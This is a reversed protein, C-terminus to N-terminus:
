SASLSHLRAVAEPNDAASKSITAAVAAASKADLTVLEFGLLKSADAEFASDAFTDGLAKELTAATAADMGPPAVLARLVALTGVLQQMASQDAESYKASPDAKLVEDLTPLDPFRKDRIIKGDSDLGGSQALQVYKGDKVQPVVRPVYTSLSLLFTNVEGRDLAALVDNGGPYGTVLKYKTGLADFFLREQLDVDSKPGYGGAVVESGTTALDAATKLGTDSRAFLIETESIGGLWTWEDSKYQVAPEGLLPALAPDTLIGITTGDSKSSWVKNAGLVGDAGPVNEVVLNPSGPIHNALHKTLLRGFTDTPGGASFNIIVKITKGAFDVSDPTSSDATESASPASSGSSSPPVSQSKSDTPSNSENSSGGSGCAALVLSGTLGAAIIAMARRSLTKM